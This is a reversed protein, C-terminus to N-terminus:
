DGKVFPSYGGAQRREPPFPPQKIGNNVCKNYLGSAHWYAHRSLHCYTMENTEELGETGIPSRSLPCYTM